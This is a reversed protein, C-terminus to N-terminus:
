EGGSLEAVRHNTRHDLEVRALLKQASQEMDKKSRGAILAPMMVNELATFEPMLHHFQFIFGLSRNRFGALERDNQKILSEGQFFLEGTTPSELTGLIKLLTSKGSGSAGVIATMEGPEIALNIDSLVTLRETGVPFTKSIGTAQFLPSM